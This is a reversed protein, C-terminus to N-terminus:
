PRPRPSAPSASTSWCRARPARAGRQGPQRGPAARGAAHVAVLADALGTALAHLEPGPLPGDAAVRQALTPGVVLETALWPRPAEADAALVAQVRPHQVRQAAAVERAFRARATADGLAGEPLVKVAVEIGDPGTAVWVEGMGGTGLSRVLTYPGLAEGPGPM